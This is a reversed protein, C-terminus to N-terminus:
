KVLLMKITQRFSAGGSLPRAELTAFYVGSAMGSGDFRALRTGADLTEDIPLAVREGLANHIALRVRSKTPLDFSITTAPNFPNPYNARLTFSRPADDTQVALPEYGVDYAGINVGGEGAGVLPSGSTLRYDGSAADFFAPDVDRNNAGYTLTVAGGSPLSSEGGFVDCYDYDLVSPMALTGTLEEGGNWFISNRATVQAGLLSAVGDGSTTADNNAITVREFSASANLLYAGGGENAFNDVLATRTLDIRTGSSVFLGGGRGATSNDSFRCGLTTLSADGDVYAGGGDTGAVCRSISVDILELDSEVLYVGGGNGSAQCSDIRLHALTPSAGSVIVGGGAGDIAGARLTFGILGASSDENAVFKAARSEGGADIITNWIKSTDADFVFESVVLVNKGAYDLGEEYLGPSVVVTDELGAFDMAYQISAFPYEDTGNGTADSGSKRVFWKPGRYVPARGRIRAGMDVGDVGAGKAPSGSQLAYDGSAPDVFLPDDSINNSGYTLTAGNAAVGSEGNEVCSYDLVISSGSADSLSEVARPANNWLISSHLDLTSGGELYVGGGQTAGNDALTVNAGTATAGNVLVVGGGAGTTEANNKVILADRLFLSSNDASVGFNRNGSVVCNVLAAKSGTVTAGGDGDTLSLGKITVSDTTVGSVAIAAGVASDSKVVTHEPGFHSVITIPDGSISVNEEYEGAELIVVGGTTSADIAEQIHNFPEDRTGTEAGAHTPDVFLVKSVTSGTGQELAVYQDVAPVDFYERSGDLWKVEIQLIEERAGLGFHLTQMHMALDSHSSEVQKVGSWSGDPFYIQAVSGLATKGVTTGNGVLEVGLWHRDPANLDNRFLFVGRAGTQTSYFAVDMDGDQDYDGASVGQNYRFEASQDFGMAATVDTFHGLNEPGDNRFLYSVRDDYWQTGFLDLDGDNDYDVWSANHWQMEPGSTILGAMLTVNSFTGDGNNRHLSLWGHINGIALDFDGDNDYDGFAAGSALGVGYRGHPEIAVGAPQAVDQFYGAGDNQWLLNLWTEGGIGYVPAFIDMDGDNDYDCANTGRTPRRYDGIELQPIRSPTVDTWEGASDLKMLRDKGIAYPDWSGIMGLYCEYVGDGEVDVFTPQGGFVNPEHHHITDVTHRYDPAGQNECYYTMYGYYPTLVYDLDGDDGIDAFTARYLKRSKTILTDDPSYDMKEFTGDGQNLYFYYPSIFLDPLGDSNIDPWATMECGSFTSPSVGLAAETVDTFQARTESVTLMVLATFLISRGFSM